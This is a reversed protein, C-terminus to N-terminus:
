WINEVDKATYKHNREEYVTGSKQAKLRLNDKKTLRFLFAIPALFIFFIISLLVYSNFTGLVLAIKGWFWVVKDTLFASFIGILGVGLSVILFYSSWSRSKFIFYLALMGVTIVLM